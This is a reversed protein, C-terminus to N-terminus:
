LSKRVVHVRLMAGNGAEDNSQEYPMGGTNHAAVTYTEGGAIALSDGTKPPFLTSLDSKLILFDKNTRYISAGDNDFAEQRTRAPVITLTLSTAGRTYTAAVGAVAQLDGVLVTAADTFLSM